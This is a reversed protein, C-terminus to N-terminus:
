AYQKEMLALLQESNWDEVIGVVKKNCFNEIINAHSESRAIISLREDRLINCVQTFNM